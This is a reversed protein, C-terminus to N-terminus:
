IRGISRRDVAWFVDMYSMVGVAHDLILPVWRVVPCVLQSGMEVAWDIV